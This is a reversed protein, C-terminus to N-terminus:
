DLELALTVVDSTDVVITKGFLWLLSLYSAMKERDGAIFLTRAPPSMALKLALAAWAKAGREVHVLDVDDSKRLAIESQTASTAFVTIKANPFKNKLLTEDKVWNGSAGLALVRVRSVSAGDNCWEKVTSKLQTAEPSLLFLKETELVTPCKELRWMHEVYRGEPAGATASRLVGPKIFAVKFQSAFVSLLELKRSLSDTVDSVVEQIVAGKATLDRVLRETHDARNIGYPVDKYMYIKKQAMIEPMQMLASLCANRTLDHDSHTGAGLPFWIEEADSNAFIEAVKSTWTALYQADARRDNNIAVCTRHDKFFQLSWDSDEYRMTAENCGAVEYHGGLHQMFIEGEVRRLESVEDRDFFDRGTHFSSSYNSRSAMTVLSFEVDHRRDWMLAGISLAADDCHPEIILISQRATEEIPAILDVLGREALETIANDADSQLEARQVPESLDAFIAFAHESLQPLPRTSNLYFVQGSKANFHPRRRIVTKPDIM